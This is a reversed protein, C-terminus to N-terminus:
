VNLEISTEDDGKEIKKKAKDKRMRFQDFIGM